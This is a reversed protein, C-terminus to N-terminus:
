TGPFPPQPQPNRRCIEDAAPNLIDGIDEILSEVDYGRAPSGSFGITMLDRRVQSPTAGVLRGLEHSFVRRQGDASLIRLHRRYRTLREIVAAPIRSM